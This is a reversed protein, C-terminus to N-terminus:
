DFLFYKWHARSANRVAVHGRQAAVEAPYLLLLDTNHSSFDQEDRKNYMVIEKMDLSLHDDVAAGLCVVIAVITSACIAAWGSGTAWASAGRHEQKRRACDSSM